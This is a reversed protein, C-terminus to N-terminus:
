GVILPIRIELGRTAAKVLKAIRYIYILRIGIGSFGYAGTLFITIIKQRYSFLILRSVEEETM